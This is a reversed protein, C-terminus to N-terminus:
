RRLEVIMTYIVVGIISHLNPDLTIDELNPLLSKLCSQPHDIILEGISAIKM